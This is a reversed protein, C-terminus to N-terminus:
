SYTMNGSPCNSTATRTQYGTFGLACYANQITSSPACPLTCTPYDSAGNACTPAPILVCNSNDTSTSGACIGNPASYTTTVISLGTYGTPCFGNSVQTPACVIPTCNSTDWASYTINGNPCNSTANRTQYGTFGLACYSSQITTSPACPPTCTPFDKGGNACTSPPPNACGSWDTNQSSVCAGNIVTYTTHTVTQGTQGSPCQGTTTYSAPCTPTCTPYDSAGNACTPPPILTCNSNDTSTSGGCIGNPASYTTTITSTGAYGAPCSGNTVQPAQCVVPTCKSTDWGSYTMNGNPCNYTASRTQFGTWGLACYSNEVSTSPTCPPTCTPYDNGGNACTSPPPTACASWDTNQSPTCSGNLVTFTTNTVTQGTQGSPCPGTTTYSAPCTPTCTPYDSAGNPCTSPQSPFCNSNDSTTTGSCIGNPASYTTTIISFGFFGSACSATSVKPPPCTIPVCKSSDWPTYTMTGNPCTATATRTQEGTYGLPCYLLETTSKPTCPTTCTPFDTAGNACTTPAVIACDSTDRVANGICRGNQLTYTTTTVTTGILPARCSGTTISTPPCPNAVCHSTDWASYSMAGNPCTATADRTQVGTAGGTCSITQQVTTPSCPVVCVNGQLVMGTPCVCSIGDGQLVLPAACTNQVCSPNGLFDHQLSFSWPCAMDDDVCHAIKSGALSWHRGVDCSKMTPAPACGVATPTINCNTAYLDIQSSTGAQKCNDTNFTRGDTVIGSPCEKVRLPFKTGTMGEGCPIGALPISYPSCSIEKNQASAEQAPLFGSFLVVSFFVLQRLLLFYSTKM